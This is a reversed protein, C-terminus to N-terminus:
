SCPPDALVSLAQTIHTPGVCVNGDCGAGTCGVDCSHGNCFAFEVAVTNSGAVCCTNTTTLVVYRALATTAGSYTTNGLCDSEATTWFGGLGDEFPSSFVCYCIGAENHCGCPNHDCDVGPAQRGMANMCGLATYIYCADDVCCPSGGGRGGCHDCGSHGCLGGGCPVGVGQFVGECGEETTQSCSIGNCCAGTNGSGGGGCDGCPCPDGSTTVVKAGSM